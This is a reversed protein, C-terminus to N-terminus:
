RTFTSVLSKQLFYKSCYQSCKIKMILDPYIFENDKGDYIGVMGVYDLSNTVIKEEKPSSIGKYQKYIKWLEDPSPFENLSLETEIKGNSLTKYYMYFGDGNSSFVVM